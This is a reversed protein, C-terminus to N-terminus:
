ISLMERKNVRKIWFFECPSCLGQEEKERVVSGKLVTECQMHTIV